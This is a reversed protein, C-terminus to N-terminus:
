TFRLGSSLRLWWLVIEIEAIVYELSFVLAKFFEFYNAYLASLILFEFRKCVFEFNFDKVLQVVNFLYIVYELFLNLGYFPSSIKAIIIHESEDDM